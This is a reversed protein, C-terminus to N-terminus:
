NAASRVIEDIQPTGAVGATFTPRGVPRTSRRFTLKARRLWRSGWFRRFYQMNERLRLSFRRTIRDKKRSSKLSIGIAALKDQKAQNEISKTRDRGAGRPLVPSPPLSPRHLLPARARRTQPVHRPHHPFLGGASLAAPLLSPPLSPRYTRSFWASPLISRNSRGERGRRM